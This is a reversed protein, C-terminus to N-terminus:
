KAVRKISHDSPSSWYVYTEDVVLDVPDQGDALTLPHETGDSRARRVSGNPPGPPLPWIPTPTTSKGIWYVFDDKVVVRIPPTPEASAIVVLGSGDKATRAVTKGTTFYVGSGDVWLGAASPQSAVIEHAGTGDPQSRMVRDGTGDTWYIFTGDSAISTAGGASSVITQGDKTGRAARRIVGSKANTWYVFADDVAIGDPPNPELSFPTGTVLAGADASDLPKQITGVGKDETWFLDPGGIVVFRTPSSTHLVAQMEAKNAKNVRGIGHDSVLNAAGYIWVDDQALGQVVLSPDSGLLDVECKRDQCQAGKCDHGCAGCNHMDTTLDATCPRGFEADFEDFPVLLSCGVVVLAFSVVFLRGV